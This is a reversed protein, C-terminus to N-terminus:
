RTKPKSPESREGLKVVVVGALILLGGSIQMVSPAQGLLLWGYLVSVVVESLAIFAALRAGLMRTSAIGLVYALAGAIVGIALVPIYWPVTGTLFSVDQFNWRMPLVGVVGFLTLGIAGGFLGFGALSIPPLASDQNASLLFYAASGVMAGLAWLVGIPNVAAGSALDLVMVLGGIAVVAGVVTLGSPKRGHRVWLWVVVAIPSLYEILLAVGVDMVAVAQFYFLQTAGVAFVGYLVVTVTNRRLLAWDGRLAIIAPILLVLAAIWVRATVAAGPSWGADILGRALPGSAGFSLATLLALVVGNRVRAASPSGALATVSDAM